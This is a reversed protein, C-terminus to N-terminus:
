SLNLQNNISICVLLHQNENHYYGVLHTFNLIDPTM